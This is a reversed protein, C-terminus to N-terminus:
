GGASRVYDGIDLVRPRSAGLRTCAWHRASASAVRAAPDSLSPASPTSMPRGLFRGHFPRVKAEFHERKSPVVIRPGTTPFPTNRPRPGRPRSGSRQRRDSQRNKWGAVDGPGPAGGSVTRCSLSASSACTGEEPCNQRRLHLRQGSPRLIDRIRPGLLGHGQGYAGSEADVLDGGLDAFAAAAPALKTFRRPRTPQQGLTSM